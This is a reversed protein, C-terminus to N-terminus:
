KNADVLHFFFMMSLVLFAVFGAVLRTKRYADDVKEWDTAILYLFYISVSLCIIGKVFDVYSNSM